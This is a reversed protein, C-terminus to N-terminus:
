GDSAGDAFRFRRIVLGGTSNNRSWQMITGDFGDSHSTERFTPDLVYTEATQRLRHVCRKAAGESHHLHPCEWDTRRGDVYLRASWRATVSFSSPEVVTSVTRQQAHKAVGSVAAGDM